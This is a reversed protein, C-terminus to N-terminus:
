QEPAVFDLSSLFKVCLDFQDDTLAEAADGPYLIFEIDYGEYITFVAGALGDPDKAVLLKTGYETETYTIIVNDDEAYFTAELAALQEDDLDNLRKFNADTDDFSISLYLLPKAPDESTLVYFPSMPDTDIIELQYGEPLTAWLNFEGNVSVTGLNEKAEEALVSACSLLLVLSLLVAILKKMTKIDEKM